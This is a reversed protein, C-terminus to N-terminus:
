RDPGDDPVAYSGVAIAGITGIKVLLMGAYEIPPSYKVLAGSITIGPQSFGLGLGKLDLTANAPNSFPVTLSLDDVQASLGAVSLGGDVLLGAEESTLRV